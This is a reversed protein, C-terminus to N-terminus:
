IHITRYSESIHEIVGELLECSGRHSRKNLSPLRGNRITGTLARRAGQSRVQRACRWTDGHGGPRCQLLVKLLGLNLREHRM